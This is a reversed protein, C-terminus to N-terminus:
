WTVAGSFNIEHGFDKTSCRCHMTMTLNLYNLSCNLPKSDNEESITTSRALAVTDGQEEDGGEQEQVARARRRCLAHEAGQPERRSRCRTRPLPLGRPSSRHNPRRQTADDAGHRGSAAAFGGSADTVPRRVKQQEDGVNALHWANTRHLFLPCPVLLLAVCLCQRSRRGERFFVVAPWQNFRQIYQVQCLCHVAPTRCFTKAILYIKRSNYSPSTVM